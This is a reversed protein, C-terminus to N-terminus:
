YRIETFIGIESFETRTLAGKVFNGKTGTQAFVDMKDHKAVLSLTVGKLPVTQIGFNYYQNKDWPKLDKSPKVSDVRAFLTYMPTVRYSGFIAAGDAKDGKAHDATTDTIASGAWDNAAFYEVGIKGRDGVYAALANFRNASHPTATLTTGSYVSNGRKGTYGGVAFNWQDIKASLRGEFDMTKSRSSDRYGKGNIMSVQYSLISNLKGGVHVGWDASTGFTGRNGVNNQELVTNELYRNGYISEAYPIWPLENSGLSVEFAPSFSAKVFAKKVYLGQGAASGNSQNMPSVDTQLEASFLDNFKKDVQFYVRKVDFGFGNKNGSKQGNVEFSNASVDMYTRGSISFGQDPWSQASAGGAAAVALAASAVGFFLTSTKM